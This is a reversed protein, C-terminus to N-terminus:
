GHCGGNKNLCTSVATVPGEWGTLIGLRKRFRVIEQDRLSQQEDDHETINRTKTPIIDWYICGKGWFVAPSIRRPNSKPTCADSSKGSKQNKKRIKRAAREVEVKGWFASGSTSKQTGGETNGTALRTALWDLEFGRPLPQAFPRGALDRRVWARLVTMILTIGLQSVTASWHSGRIGIYQLIFGCIATLAAVVVLGETFKSLDDDEALYERDLTDTRSRYKLEAENFTGSRARYRLQESKSLSGPLPQGGTLNTSREPQYGGFLSTLTQIPHSTILSRREGKAFLAFAGFQQDNVIEAKQVWMIYFGRDSASVWVEEATSQEVIYSCLLMGVVVALTGSVFLEYSSNSIPGDPIQLGLKHYYKIMSELFLVGFQLIVGIFAVLWLNWQRVRRNDYNLTVNPAYPRVYKSNNWKRTETAAGEAKESDPQVKRGNSSQYLWRRMGSLAKRLSATELYSYLLYRDTKSGRYSWLEM